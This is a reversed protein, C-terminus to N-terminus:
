KSKIDEINKILISYTGNDNQIFEVSEADEYITNPVILEIGNSLSLKQNEFKKLQRSSDIEEFSVKEPIVDKLEDVFSLRATLNNEFLQNALKEPSLENDEELHNFIASKVKSQFQFDAQNFNEAVKQATQEVAKISKKASIAPSDQLVNDSFYNLFTGNYKIRKEILHYKKTQLNLLLAEDPASGASPLNNQTLKLPSDSASGIHVLNERLSIRLFAFQEVGNKEFRVFVLDNVKLNESVAFEEKWLNAIAVSSSLLDDSLYDLFPSEAGLQGRKAEDSYSREIKKRLYEEIKPTITLLKDALVLETDEPSFQHIVAEKIYIDM